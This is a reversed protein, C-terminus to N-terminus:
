QMCLGARVLFYAADSQRRGNISTGGLGIEDGDKLKVKGSIKQNNVYTFNTKSLNEIYLEKDEVTLKAHTRSVYRKLGLYESMAEERGVTIESSTIKYAFQGDLSGLVITSNSATEGGNIDIVIDVADPTPTIDSIDEHCVSCKRSNAPNKAGCDCLRILRPAHYSENQEDKSDLLKQDAKNAAEEIKEAEEDTIKVRTLDAECAVCELLTPANRTGCAPCIKYKTM